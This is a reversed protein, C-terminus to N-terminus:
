KRNSVVVFAPDSVQPLSLWRRETQRLRMAPASRSCTLFTTFGSLPTAPKFITPLVRASLSSCRRLLRATSPLLLCIIETLAPHAVAIRPQRLYGPYHVYMASIFNRRPYRRRPLFFPTMGSAFVFLCLRHLSSGRVMSVTTAQKLLFVGGPNALSAENDFYALQTKHLVGYKTVWTSLSGRDLYVKLEGAVRPRRMISPLHLVIAIILVPILPTQWCLLAVCAWGSPSVTNCLDFRQKTQQNLQVDLPSVSIRTSAPTSPNM